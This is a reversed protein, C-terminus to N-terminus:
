VNLIPYFQNHVKDLMYTKSDSTKIVPIYERMLEGNLTITCSYCRFNGQGLLLPTSNGDCELRSVSKSVNDLKTEILTWDTRIFDFTYTRNLELAGVTETARNYGYVIRLVTDDIKAQFTNSYGATQTTFLLQNGTSNLSFNLHVQTTGSEIARNPYVDTNIYTTPTFDIYDLQTYSEPFYAPIFEGTGANGYFQNNVKDWLGIAGEYDCPVLDRILTGSLYIKCGYLKMSAMYSQPRNNSINFIYGNGPTTFSGSNINREFTGIKIRSSSLYVNIRDTTPSTSNRTGGMDTMIVSTSSFLTFARDMAGARSGFINANLKVMQLDLDVAHNNTLKFGLDIYQTGSSQIYELQKYPQASYVQTSGYYISRVQTAGYYYKSPTKDKYRLNNM